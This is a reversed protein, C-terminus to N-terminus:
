EDIPKASFALDVTYLSKMEAPTKDALPTLQALLPEVGAEGTALAGLARFKNDLIGELDCTTNRAHGSPYMIFGSDYEVGDIDTIVVSSPIGDPYKSDYEDGGHEFEIKAMLDRTEADYIAEKKFDEPMLILKKWAADNDGGLAAAGLKRAKLFKRSVIFVMSHDASQRTHPDRKDADGIIGFAPQYAVIKITKIGKTLLVPNARLNNVLGQLAGASQHEYLGLKFHMGMVAWDDGSHTLALDFPSDGTAKFSGGTTNEFFRFIAEPNRFVDKPGVFGAMSRHVCLIAAETSIAASAGKSDSLQHGARIARFPIYHAVSMGIASEIQEASAGMLAGYVAASAIAGHVVHDIKYSKLSFVEALRGRIEDSCLMARLATKGDLGRMQCAAVCVGYFDNHGFEGAFHGLKKNYGFVTGNSDWERVASANALIAKEPAVLQASGFCTAGKTADSRPYQLAEERLVTPANTRMALASLGCVVSDTHFLETRKLVAADPVGNGAVLFDLAYQAIGLAQNTNRGLFTVAAPNCLAAKDMM